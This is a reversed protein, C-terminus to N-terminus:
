VRDVQGKERGEGREIEEGWEKTLERRESACCGARGLLATHLCHLSSLVFLFAFLTGVVMSVSLLLFYSQFFHANFPNSLRVLSFGCSMM